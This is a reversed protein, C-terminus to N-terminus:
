IASIKSTRSVYTPQIIKGAEKAWRLEQVCYDRKFLTNHAPNDDPKDPNVCAKNVIAIVM